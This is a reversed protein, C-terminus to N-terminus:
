DNKKLLDISLSPAAHGIGMWFQPKEGGESALRM